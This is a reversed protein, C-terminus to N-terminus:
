YGRYSSLEAYKRAREAEIKQRALKEQQEKIGLEGTQLEIKRSEVAKRREEELDTLVEPKYVSINRGPQSRAYEIEAKSGLEQGPQLGLETRATEAVATQEPTGIKTAREKQATERALKIQELDYKRATEAATQEAQTRRQVTSLEMERLREIDERKKTGIGSTFIGSQIQGMKTNELRLRWEERKTAVDEDRTATIDTIRNLFDEETEAQRIDLGALTSKVEQDVDRISILLDEASRIKGEKIGAEIEATKRNYYPTVQEIAKQLFAEKEADTLSLPGLKDLERDLAVIENTISSVIKTIPHKKYEEYVKAFSKSTSLEKGQAKLEKYKKELEAYSKAM